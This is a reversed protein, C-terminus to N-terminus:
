SGCSLPFVGGSGGNLVDKRDIDKRRREEAKKREKGIVGDRAEQGGGGLVEQMTGGRWKGKHGVKRM